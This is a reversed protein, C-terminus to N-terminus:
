GLGVGLLPGRLLVPNLSRIGQDKKRPRLDAGILVQSCPSRASSILNIPETVLWSRSCRRVKMGVIAISWAFDVMTRGLESITEIESSM